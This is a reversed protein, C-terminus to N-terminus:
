YIETNVTQEVTKTPTSNTGDSFLLYYGILALLFLAIALTKTIPEISLSYHRFKYIHIKAVVFFGLILIIFITYIGFGLWFM